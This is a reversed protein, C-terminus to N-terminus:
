VRWFGIWHALAALLDDILSKSHNTPINNM